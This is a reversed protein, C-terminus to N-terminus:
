PIAISSRLQSAFPKPKYCCIDEHLVSSVLNLLCPTSMVGDLCRIWVALCNRCRELMSLAAKLCLFPLDWLARHNFKNSQQLREALDLQSKFPYTLHYISNGRLFTNGSVSRHGHDALVRRRFRLRPYLHCVRRRALGAGRVWRHVPLM